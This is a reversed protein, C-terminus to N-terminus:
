LFALLWSIELVYSSVIIESIYIHSGCHLQSQMEEPRGTAATGVTQQSHDRACATRLITGKATQSVIVKCSGVLTQPALLCDLLHNVLQGTGSSM